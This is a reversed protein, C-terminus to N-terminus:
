STLQTVCIRVAAQLARVLRLFFQEFAKQDPLFLEVTGWLNEGFLIIKVGKVKVTVDNAATLAELRNEPTVQWFNPLGIRLYCEDDPDVAIFYNLGEFKFSLDGTSDTATKFGESELFKRISDQKM